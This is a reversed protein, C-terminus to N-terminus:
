LEELHQTEITDLGVIDDAIRRRQDLVKIVNPFRFSLYITQIEAGPVAAPEHTLVELEYLRKNRSGERREM